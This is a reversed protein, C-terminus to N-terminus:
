AKIDKDFNMKEDIRKLGYIYEKYCLSQLVHTKIEELSHAEPPCGGENMKTMDVQGHGMENYDLALM